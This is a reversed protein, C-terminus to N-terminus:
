KLSEMYKVLAEQEAAPLYAYSPMKADPHLRRPYALAIQLNQPSLKTGVGDLPMALTGGEGKLAHCAFCGLRKALDPVQQEQTQAWSCSLLAALVALLVLLRL